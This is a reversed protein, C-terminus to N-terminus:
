RGLMKNILEKIENKNFVDKYKLKAITLCDTILEIEKDNLNFNKTNEQKEMKKGEKM